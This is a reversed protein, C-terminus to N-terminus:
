AEAQLYNLIKSWAGATLSAELEALSFKWKWGAPDGKGDRLAAYAERKDEVASWMERSNFVFFYPGSAEDGVDPVVCLVWFQNPKVVFGEMTGNWVLVSGNTPRSSKVEVRAFREGDLSFALIDASKANGYTITAHVGRRHLEAAVYYEGALHVSEKAAKGKPPEMATRLERLRRLVAFLRGQEFEGQIYGDGFKEGRLCLGLYRRIQNTSASVLRKPDRMIDKTGFGPEYGPPDEPLTGYADIFASSQLFLDFVGTISPHYTPYPMVSMTAGQFETTSQVWTAVNFDGEEMAPLLALMRDIDPLSWRKTPKKESM